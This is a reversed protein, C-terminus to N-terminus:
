ISMQSVKFSYKQINKNYRLTQIIIFVSLPISTMELLVTLSIFWDRDSLFYYYPYHVFFPHFNEENESSNSYNESSNNAM